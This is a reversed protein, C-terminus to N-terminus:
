PYQLGCVKYVRVHGAWDYWLTPDNDNLPAGIAVRSGDASMAVSKGSYNSAAEGDLDQGFQTWTMCVLDYIRVHGSGYGNIGKNNEAGIAVRSGDASMAISLGSHNGYSEGDIDEGVQNWTTGDLNFIRVHGSDVGNIGDNLKVGIAVRSGDASLAVSWGSEDGPAESDIDEGVKTWASTTEDLDYVRVHGSNVGNTGDNGPAGIAVRSGDASMAVSLGSADGGSEGDIDDGVKTFPSKSLDYISVLGSNAGNVGDASPAGIVVRSGDASM